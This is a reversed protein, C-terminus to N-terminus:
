RFKVDLAKELAALVQAHTQDVEKSKLTRAPDRYTLSYAVSKRDAAIKEGSDDIFLDFMEWKALIPLNLGQLVSDVRNAPLDRPLDMAIDRNSAPFKPIEAFRRQDKNALEFLVDLNLEVAFLPADIDLERLRAPNIQGITGLQHKKGVALSASKIFVPNESPKIKLRINPLISNLVARLDEYGLQRPSSNAWSRDSSEGGLLITLAQSEVVEGAEKGSAFVTGSEYFPLRTAGQSVNRAAVSLLGPLLSPRLHTHDESLPNKLAVPRLSSDAVDKLQEASILKITRSEFLGKSALAKKIDLAYDYLADDASAHAPVFTTSSPVPDLGRVRAIEETAADDGALESARLAKLPKCYFVHMCANPNFFTRLTKGEWVHVKKKEGSAPEAVFGLLVAVRGVPVPFSRQQEGDRRGCHGHEVVVGAM